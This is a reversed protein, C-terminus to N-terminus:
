DGRPFPRRPSSKSREVIARFAPNSDLLDSTLDDDDTPELTQISVLRHDPMEVVAPRGSDLCESLTGKPDTELSSLPISKIDM